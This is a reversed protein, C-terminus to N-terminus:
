ILLIAILVGVYLGINKFVKENKQIYNEIENIENQTNLIYNELLETQGNVDVVGFLSPFTLFIKKIKKNLKLKDVAETWSSNFDKCKLLAILDNYVSSLSTENDILDEIMDAVPKKTFSMTNKLFILDYKFQKLSNLQLKFESTKNLGFM